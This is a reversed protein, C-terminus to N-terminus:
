MEKEPAEKERGPKEKTPDNVSITVINEPRLMDLIPAKGDDVFEMKSNQVGGTSGSTTDTTSSASQNLEQGLDTEKFSAGGFEINFGTKRLHTQIEEIPVRVVDVPQYGQMKDSEVAM